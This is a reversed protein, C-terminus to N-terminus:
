SHYIGIEWSFFYKIKRKIRHFFIKWEEKKTYVPTLLEEIEELSLIETKRGIRIIIRRKKPLPHKKFLIKGAHLLVKDRKEPNICLMINMKGRTEIFELSNVEHYFSLKNPPNNKELLKTM